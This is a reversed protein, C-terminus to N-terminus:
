LMYGPFKRLSPGSYKGNHIQDRHKKCVPIQMSYLALRIVDTKKMGKRGKYKKRLKIMHWAKAQNQCNPISCM